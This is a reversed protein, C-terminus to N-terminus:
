RVMLYSSGLIGSFQELSVYGSTNDDPQLIPWQSADCVQKQGGSVQGGKLGLDTEFGQPLSRIFPLISSM